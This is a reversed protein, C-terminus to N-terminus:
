CGGAKEFRPLEVTDLHDRVADEPNYLRLAFRMNKAGTSPLWNKEKPTPSVNIVFSGDAEREVNYKNFSSRDAPNDIYWVGDYLTLSWWRTPPDHGVVRYDCRSDYPEGPAIDYSGYYQTEKRSLALIGNRAIRAKVLPDADAQGAQVTTRWQGNAIADATSTSPEALRKRAYWEGGFWGGAGVAIALVLLVILGRM